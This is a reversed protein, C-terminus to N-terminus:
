NEVIEEGAKFRPKGNRQKRPNKMVWLSDKKVNTTHVTRDSIQNM